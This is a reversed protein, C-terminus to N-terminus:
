NNPHYRGSLRTEKLLKEALKKTAAGEKMRWRWNLGCTSPTNMRGESGLSLVEQMQTIATDAISTFCTHIFKWNVDEADNAGIYDRIYDKYYDGCSNYWGLITDSDHTGTYAVCNPSKFNCPLYESQANPDFGFQMMKMGPFGCEDLMKRVSETIFGLDEAIIKIDGLEKKVQKFLDSGCGKKWEGHEATENEAPIAYFTDFGRFHDIRVVDYLKSAFAIRNVWWKYSQEKMIAWDYVPNGWLQGQPAFSDPPCGAVNVPKKDEDLDFLSPNQWVDVSDLACYIPIDGIIEIGNENAYKKLKSWQSFFEFQLFSYFEIEDHLRERAEQMAFPRCMVLEWEWDYWAKGDNEEKLAMFLGYSELWSANEKCFKNYEADPKFRSFAKRLVGWINEYIISYDVYEEERIWKINNYEDAKLLGQKELAEIDIFYPNGAFISFSQYPSDGCSTPSLPLIQWYHQGAAKLWDVFEYAEKGMKGIGYKNPLSSIHMIVGSYRM